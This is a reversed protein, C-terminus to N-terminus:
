TLFYMESPSNEFASLRSHDVAVSIGRECVVVLKEVIPYRTMSLPPAMLQRQVLVGRSTRLSAEIGRPELDM